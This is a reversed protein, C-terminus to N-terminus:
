FFSVEVQALVRRLKTFDLFDDVVDNVNEVGKDIVIKLNESKDKLHRAAEIL